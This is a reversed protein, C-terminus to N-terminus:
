HLSAAVFLSIINPMGERACVCWSYSVLPLVLSVRIYGRVSNRDCPQHLCQYLLFLYNGQLCLTQIVTISSRDCIEYLQVNLTEHLHLDDDHSLLAFCAAFFYMDCFFLHIVDTERKM